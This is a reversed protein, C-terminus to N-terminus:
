HRKMFRCIGKALFACIGVEAFNYEQIFEKVTTIAIECSKDILVQLCRHKSPHFHSPSLAIKKALNLSNYYANRFSSKM